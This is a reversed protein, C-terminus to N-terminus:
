TMVMITSMAPNGMDRAQVTVNYIAATERDLRNNVVINVTGDSSTSGVRFPEIHLFLMLDNLYPSYSVLPITPHLTLSPLLSMLM